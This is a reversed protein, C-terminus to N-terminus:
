SFPATNKKSKSKRISHQIFTAANAIEKKRKNYAGERKSCINGRVNIAQECYYVGISAFCIIGILM